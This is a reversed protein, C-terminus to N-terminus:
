SGAQLVSSDRYIFGKAVVKDIRFLICIDNQDKKGCSGWQIYDLVYGFIM